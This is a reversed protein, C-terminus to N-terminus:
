EDEESDSLLGPNSQNRSGSDQQMPNNLCNYDLHISEILKM